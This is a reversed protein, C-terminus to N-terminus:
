LARRVNALEKALGKGKVNEGRLQGTVSANATNLGSYAAIVADASATFQAPTPFAKSEATM